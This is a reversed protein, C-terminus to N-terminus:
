LHRGSKYIHKLTTVYDYREERSRARESILFRRQNIEDISCDHYRAYEEQMIDVLSQVNRIPFVSGSNTEWVRAKAGVNSSVSTPVGASVAEEVVMGYGEDISPLIMLDLEDFFDSVKPLYGILEVNRCKKAVELIQPIKKLEDPSTRLVLRADKLEAELWAQLLYIFGKRIINGGIAGVTFTKKRVLNKRQTFNNGALTAVRVKHSLGYKEFSEATYGSPVIIHDALEYEAIMIDLLRTSNENKALNFFEYEARLLDQQVLIHPCSRELLLISNNFRKSREFAELSFSAWGHVFEFAAKSVKAAAAKRYLFTDLEKLSKSRPLGFLRNLIKFPLPIFSVKRPDSFSKPPSGSFIEHDIELDSLLKSAQDSHYQFGPLLVTKM